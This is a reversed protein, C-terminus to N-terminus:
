NPPRGTGLQKAEPSDPFKGRLRLAYSAAQNKNRMAQEIKAALLLAEPTDNSIEFFREIFGRAALTKGSDYSIKAMQYLAVSSKPNVKLAARFYEEAVAPAPKRMLCVGANVNAEAPTKYLPDALAKKFWPEAEDIKGQSCLFVGYNNFAEPNGPEADVAERFFHRAREQDGLRWYLLGMMNNVRSDDPAMEVAKNLREQAYQVQGRQLYEASLQLNTLLMQEKRAREADREATSACGAVLIALLVLRFNALRGNM